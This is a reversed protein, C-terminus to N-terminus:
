KIIKSVRVLNGYVVVEYKDKLAEWLQDFSDNADIEIEFLDSKLHKQTDM